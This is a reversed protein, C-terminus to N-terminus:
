RSRPEPITLAVPKGVLVPGPKVYKVRPGVRKGHARYLNEEKVGALLAERCPPCVSVEKLITGEPRLFSHTLRPKGPESVTGCYTCKFCM